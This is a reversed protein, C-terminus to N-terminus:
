MDRKASPPNSRDPRFILFLVGGIGMGAVPIIVAYVISKIFPWGALTMCVTFVILTLIAIAAVSVRKVQKRTVPWDDSIKQFGYFWLIPFLTAFSLGTCVAQMIDDRSAMFYYLVFMLVAGILMSVALSLVFRKM